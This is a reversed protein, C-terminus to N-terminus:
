KGGTMGSKESPDVSGSSRAAERIMIDTLWDPECAVKVVVDLIRSVRSIERVDQPMRCTHLLGSSSNIFVFAIRRIIGIISENMPIEKWGNPTTKGSRKQPWKTGSRCRPHEGFDIDSSFHLQRENYYEISEPIGGFHEIEEELTGFFCEIKGNTQPHKVRALVQVIGYTQLGQWCATLRSKSTLRSSMFQSGHNSLIQGPTGFWRITHRLTLVVNESAAESFLEFGTVCCSADDLYVILNVREPHPYKMVYWDVHWMANSHRREYRVWKRRKSKNKSQVTIGEQTM